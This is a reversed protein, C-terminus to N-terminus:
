GRSQPHASTTAPSQYQPGRHHHCNVHMGPAHLPLPSPECSSRFGPLPKHCSSTSAFTMGQWRLAHVPFLITITCGVGEEYVGLCHCRAELTVLVEKMYVRLHPQVVTWDQWATETCGAGTRDWHRTELAWVEAETWRGCQCVYM